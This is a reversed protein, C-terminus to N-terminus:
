DTSILGPSPDHGRPQPRNSMWRCTSVVVWVRNAVVGVICVVPVVLVVLYVAAAVMMKFGIRWLRSAHSVHVLPWHQWADYKTPEPDPWSKSFDVIVLAMSSVHMLHQATRIHSEMDQQVRSMERQVSLVDKVEKARLMLTQLQQFTANLTKHRSNADIYQTTVDHANSSETTVTWSQIDTNGPTRLIQLYRSMNVSPVRVQIRGDNQNKNSNEIYGGMSVAKDRAYKMAAKVNDVSVSLSAESVLMRTGKTAITRLSPGSTTQWAEKMDNVQSTSVSSRSVSQYELSEHTPQYLAKTDGRLMAHTNPSAADSGHSLMSMLVPIWLLGVIVVLTTSLPRKCSKSTM